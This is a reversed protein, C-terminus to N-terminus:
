DDALSETVEVELSDTLWSFETVPLGDSQSVKLEKDLQKFEEDEDSDCEPFQYVKIGFKDIEERIQVNVTVCVCVCTLHIIVTFLRRLIFCASTLTFESQRQAKKDRQTHPLWSKCDAPYHESKWASGEHVRCGSSAAQPFSIARTLVSVSAILIRWAFFLKIACSRAPFSCTPFTNNTNNGQVVSRTSCKDTQIQTHTQTDNGTGSRLSSTSAATSETTRSTRETWGARM